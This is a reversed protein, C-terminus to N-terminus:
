FMILNLFLWSAQKYWEEPGPPQQPLSNFVEQLRSLRSKLAKLEHSIEM